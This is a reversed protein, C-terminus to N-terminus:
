CASTDTNGPLKCGHIAARSVAGLATWKQTVEGHNAKCARRIHEPKAPDSTEPIFARSVTVHPQLTM